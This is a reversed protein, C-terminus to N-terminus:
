SGVKPAAAVMAAYVRAFYGANGQVSSGALCQAANAERPVVVMGAAEIASLAARVTVMRCQVSWAYYNGACDTDIDPMDHEACEIADAIAAQLDSIVFTSGDKM